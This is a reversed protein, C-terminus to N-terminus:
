VWEGAEDLLVLRFEGIGFAIPWAMARLALGLAWQGGVSKNGCTPLCRNRRRSGRVASGTHFNGASPIATAPTRAATDAILCRASRGTEPPADVGLAVVSSPRQIAQWPRDVRGTRAAANEGVPRFTTRLAPPKSWVLALRSSRQGRRACVPFLRSSRMEGSGTRGTAPASAPSAASGREWRGDRRSRQPPRWPSLTGVCRKDKVRRRKSRHQGHM